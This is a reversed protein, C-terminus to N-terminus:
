WESGLLFGFRRGARCLFLYKNKNYKGFAAPFKQRQRSNLVKSIKRNEELKIVIEYSTRRREFQLHTVCATSLAKVIGNLAARNYGLPKPSSKLEVIVKENCYFYIYLGWNATKEARAERKWKSFSSDHIESQHVSHAM